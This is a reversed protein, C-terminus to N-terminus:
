FTQQKYHGQPHCVYNQENSIHNLTSLKILTNKLSFKFMEHILNGIVWAWLECIKKDVV